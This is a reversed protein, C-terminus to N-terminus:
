YGTNQWFGQGSASSFNTVADIQSQPIPRLYHNEKIQGSAQANYKKVHDILTHTRKLDFWRQQEGCLEIAREQLVTELTATGSLSNDKGNIARVQRLANITSMAAGGSATYLQCEAKILYMEALRLVVADRSSIDWTPYNSDYVNDLFKKIGPYSCWGAIKYSNYRGDKYVDSSVKAAETPKATAPDSSTYVPIDGGSMFQIRYRNKAWAQKAQGEASTGDLHCYYIATDKMAKYKTSSGELGPAITYADLLTAATRQDTTRHEELLNWLYLSPLYRTFGRGYPSYASSVDVSTGTVTNKVFHSTATTGVRVFVEKGDGGLDTAGNNWMSVFMLLMASGGRSYGTRTILSNYELKNGSSDKKYRYPICNTTTAIDPSYAVGWISEKNKTIDENAMSWTDAYNTYFSAVGSGMVAEAEAQALAYLDKGSYNSNTTISNKGLWSAAYLLTRAKLAKAAWYNARGDTKVKYNATEFAAISNDLDSLINSYIVEESVRTPNTVIETIPQSNYPIPGWISVMHLYYFARLFYAEGMYQNHLTESIVKNQPLYYLANNCVDVASYFLEWYHDLCANDSSNGDLSQAAINYSNLSKQKNDYGYYFLDTGMESLGLGAEKGYWGRAFSYCSSVLGQIGSSTAYSLDATQGVKNDEELFDACSTTSLMFSSAALLIYIIKKM